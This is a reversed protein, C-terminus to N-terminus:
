RKKTKQMKIEKKIDELVEIVLNIEETSNVDLGIRPVIRNLHKWIYKKRNKNSMEKFDKNKDLIMRRDALTVLDNIFQNISDDNINTPPTVETSDAIGISLTMNKAEKREKSIMRKMREEILFAQEKTCNPLFIVFEDGGFRIPISEEKDIINPFEISDQPKRNTRVCSKIISAIHKIGQDGITHGDNDNVLKVGDIDCFMISWTQEKNNNKHNSVLGSLM